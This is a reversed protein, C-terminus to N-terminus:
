GAHAIVWDYRPVEGPQADKVTQRIERAVKAPTGARARNAQSWISYRASVVPVDVGNRDKVWFVKGAGAEYADYQFVLIGLLGDTQRAFVEYAKLANASDVRAVNFGIVRTNNRQMMTWTRRAHRGLLEWRDAREAGFLDPFYYGGGWEIFEDNPSQTSFAYEIAGPCLQALQAFCCSWGFPIKGRDPNSWYSKGSGTRFFNGEFWQVNDGDTSVFSVASRSDKWDITRPDFNRVTPQETKETGAMLVPLNICWDTATQLHGWRSSMETSKFEDGGNWGLIPSLPALWQLVAPTPADYGYCTFAKQAIALDRVNPKRPDQTCVLARNFRDKYTEFCWAQTKDRVDILLKLGHQRAQTELAEDVMIGDLIGALSTAVNASCDMGRRLENIKGKSQVSRYLLYGRNIGRKAFREVLAWPDLVGRMELQPHRKLIRALWDEVDINDTGVWVMEDGRGDNVAKAALGAVSQVMMECSARPAPFDNRNTTRALAKPMAQAPWWGSQHEVPSTIASPAANEAPACIKALLIAIIVSIRMRQPQTHRATTLGCARSM